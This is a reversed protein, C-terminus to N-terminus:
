YITIIINVVIGKYCDAVFKLKKNASKLESFSELLDNLDKIKKEPDRRWILDKKLANFVIEKATKIQEHSYFSFIMESLIEIAYDKNATNLFCLLNNVLIECSM